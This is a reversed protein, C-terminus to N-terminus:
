SKLTEVVKSLLSQILVACERYAEIGGFIPAPIDGGDRVYEALVYTKEVSQPFHSVVMQKHGADMVLVLNAWDVLRKDLSKSQFRSLDIGHERMVEIAEPEAATRGANTGASDVEIGASRLTHDKGIMDEFLLHAMSSRCQNATCVFLIRKIM